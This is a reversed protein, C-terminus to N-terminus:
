DTNINGIVFFIRESVYTETKSILEHLMRTKTDNCLFEDSTYKEIISCATQRDKIGTTIDPQRNVSDNEKNM